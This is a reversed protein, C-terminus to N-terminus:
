SAQPLDPRPTVHLKPETNRGKARTDMTWQGLNDKFLEMAQVLFRVPYVVENSDLYVGHTISPACSIHRGAIFEPPGITAQNAINWYFLILDVQCPCHWVAIQPSSRNATLCTPCQSLSITFHYLYVRLSSLSCRYLYLCSLAVHVPLHFPWSQLVRRFTALFSNLCSTFIGQEYSTL